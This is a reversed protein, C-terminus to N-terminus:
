INADKKEVLRGVFLVVPERLLGPDPRFIEPNIGIYHEVVKDPPFSQELLKEKIFKSVTIFMQAERKLVEKRYFYVRHSYFSRRAYEDKVTADYGHFTVVLPIKLNRALPLIRVGDLGFHAHILVPNLERIRQFFGPALGCLKYAVESVNGLLGRTLLRPESKLFHCARCLALVQM